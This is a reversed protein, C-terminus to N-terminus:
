PRSRVELVRHEAAQGQLPLDEEGQHQVRHDGRCRRGAAPRPGDAHDRIGPGCGCPAARPDAPGIQGILTQAGSLSNYSFLVITKHAGNFATVTANINIPPGGTTSPVQIISTGGGELSDGCADKAQQTTTAATFQTPDCTPFGKQYFAGDQDYDVKSLTTANPLNNPNGPNTASVDTFLAVPAERTLQCSIRPSVEPSPRFTPCQRPM